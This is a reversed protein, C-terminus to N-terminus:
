EPRFRGGEGGCGCSRPPSQPLHGQREVRSPRRPGQVAQVRRAPEPFCGCSDSMPTGDPAKWPHWAALDVTAGRSRLEPVVMFLSMNFDGMLVSVNYRLIKDALWPWFARLKSPWRNNALHCHLHIVMVNHPAGLFGVGHDLLVKAIMVRSYADARGGGSRRKYRGEYRREWFLLELAAGVQKRVGILVSCEECGRLTLYEYSDRSELSHPPAAPDGNTGSSRLVQESQEECEALGIVMAPNRKLVRDLHMLMDLNRPRKGWNGFLWGLNGVHGAPNRATAPAAAEPPVDKPATDRPPRGARRHETHRPAASGAAAVAADFQDDSCASDGFVTSASQATGESALEDDDDGAADDGAVAPQAPPSVVHTVPAWHVSAGRRKPLLKPILM